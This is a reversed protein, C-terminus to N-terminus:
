HLVHPIAKAGFANSVDLRIMHTVGHYLRVCACVCCLCVADCEVIVGVGNVCMGNDGNQPWRQAHTHRHTNTHLLCDCRM